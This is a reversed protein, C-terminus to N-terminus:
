QTATATQDLLSEVLRSQFDLFATNDTVKLRSDEYAFYKHLMSKQWFFLVYTLATAQKSELSIRGDWGSLLKKMQDFKEKENGNM